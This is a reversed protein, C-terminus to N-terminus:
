SIMQIALPSSYMNSTRKPMSDILDLSKAHYANRIQTVIGMTKTVILLLGEEFSLVATALAM